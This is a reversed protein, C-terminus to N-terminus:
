NETEAPESSEETETIASYNQGPRLEQEGILEKLAPYALAAVLTWALVLLVILIRVNKKLKRIQEEQTLVKRRPLTMKNAPTEQRRPLQVVTGPKVPYREMETLCAQCFVQEQATERGCRM